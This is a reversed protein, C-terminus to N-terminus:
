HDLRVATTAPASFATLFRDRFADMRWTPAGQGPRLGDQWGWGGVRQTVAPDHAVLTIPVRHSAGPGSVVTAPQHDGLVVLVLNDDHVSRVFSVLSELSYSISQGYAARLSPSDSWAQAKTRAHAEITGFVRGDGVSSWDVMTPLPAWPLHSTVLDIEAMVPRRSGSSLERDAFAKLTYQDPMPAYGFAPGAYGVNTADYLQDYRYFSRGQPWDGRDAPSDGVTRWGARRFAASLTLRDTGVLQDYRQQSDVWVGAQLTSHALWSIGGFTPSDLWASRSTYGAARLQATGQDLTSSVAASEPTGTVAVEGYAEVFVILVDKGRLGSVLDGPPTTAFPDHAITQAFVARDRVAARVQGVHDAVLGVSPTAALPLGPGVQVHAVAAVLWGTTLAVLAVTWGRRHRDLSPGLHRVGLRASWPVGGLVALVLLVAGVVATTGVAGGASDHVLGSADRLYTWDTVVNFPRSLASTFGLDLIKVITLMALVAGGLLAAADRWRAPLVLVVAVVLVPELPLRLLWDLPKGVADEPAVLVAWVVLGTGIAAVVGARRAVRVWRSAQSM